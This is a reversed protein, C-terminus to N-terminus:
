SSKAAVAEQSKSGEIRLNVGSTVLRDRGVRKAEYLARDAAQLLSAPDSGHTPYIALGMSLTFAPLAVGDLRVEMARIAAALRQAWARANLADAGFLVVTFEEGGYRCALDDQRCSKKLLAGLATLVADGGAHGHADNFRKFHDIDMM